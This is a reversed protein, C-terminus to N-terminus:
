RSQITQRAHQRRNRYAVLAEGVVGVQDSPREYLLNALERLAELAKAHEVQGGGRETAADRLDEVRQDRQHVVHSDLGLPLHHEAALLEVVRGLAEVVRELAVRVREAVLFPRDELAVVLHVRLLDLAAPVHDDDMVGLGRRDSSVHRLLRARPDPAAVDVEGRRVRVRDIVQHRVHALVVRRDPVHRCYTGAASPPPSESPTTIQGGAMSGSDGFFMASEGSSAAKTQSWNPM